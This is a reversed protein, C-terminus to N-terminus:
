YLQGGADLVLQEIEKMQDDYEESLCWKINDLITCKINLDEEMLYCNVNPDAGKELLFKIIEPSHEYYAAVLPTLGDIGYLDIDAGFELLLNIIEKCKIHNELDKSIEQEKTLPNDWNIGQSRFFRVAYTLASDGSKDLCNINAGKAIAYKITDIDWDRCAMLLVKDWKTPIHLQECNCLRLQNLSLECFFSKIDDWRYSVPQKNFSHNWVNNIRIDHANECDIIIDCIIDTDLHPSMLSTREKARLYAGECVTIENSNAIRELTAWFDQSLLTEIEPTCSSYHQIQRFVGESNTYHIQWYDARGMALKTKIWVQIAYEFKRTKLLTSCSPYSLNRSLSINCRDIQSPANLCIRSLGCPYTAIVERAIRIDERSFEEQFNKLKAM